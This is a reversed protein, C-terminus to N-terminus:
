HVVEVEVAAALSSLTLTQRQIMYELPVVVVEEVVLGVRIELVVVM